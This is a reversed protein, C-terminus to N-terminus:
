NSGRAGLAKRLLPFEAPAAPGPRPAAPVAPAVAIPQGLVRDLLAFSPVPPEARRAPAAALMPVRAPAAEAAPLVRPEPAARMTMPAAPPPPVAPVMAVPRVAAAPASRVPANRFSRYPLVGLGLASALRAVDANVDPMQNGEPAVNQVAWVNSASQYSVQTHFVIETM